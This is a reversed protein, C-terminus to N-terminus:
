EIEIAIGHGGRHQRSEGLVTQQRPAVARDLDRVLRQEAFPRAKLLPQVLVRLSAFQPLVERLGRALPVATAAVVGVEIATGSQGGCVLPRRRVRGLHVLEFPLEDRGAASGAVTSNPAQTEPDA